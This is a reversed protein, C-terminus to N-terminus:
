KKTASRTKEFEAAASDFTAAKGLTIIVKARKRQVEGQDSDSLTQTEFKLLTAYGLSCLMEAARVTNAIAEGLGHLQVQSQTKFSVKAANVYASHFSKASVRIIGESSM